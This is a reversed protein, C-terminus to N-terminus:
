ASAPPSLRPDLAFPEQQVESFLWDAASADFILNWSHRSVASPAIFAAHEALLQTGFSQQGASPQGPHLWHANPLENAQLIFLREQATIRANTLIHPVTDLAEFTKHVAVELIATAPDLSAYVARTGRTNWRGGVRFSGEGSAWTPAHRADDLRWLSLGGEGLPPPLPNV